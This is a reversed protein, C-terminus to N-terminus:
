TKTYNGASIAQAMRRVQRSQRTGTLPVSMPQLRSQEQRDHSGTVTLVGGKGQDRDTHQQYSHCARTEPVDHRGRPLKPGEIRGPTLANGPKLPSAFIGLADKRRSPVISTQCLVRCACLGLREAPNELGSDLIDIRDKM